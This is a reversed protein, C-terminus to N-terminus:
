LMYITAISAQDLLGCVEFLRVDMMSLMEPMVGRFVGVSSKDDDM